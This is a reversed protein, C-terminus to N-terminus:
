IRFGQDGISPANVRCEVVEDVLPDIGGFDGSGDGSGEAVLPLPIDLRQQLVRPPVHQERDLVRLRKSAKFVHPYM